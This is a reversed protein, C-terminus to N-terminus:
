LADKKPSIIELGKNFNSTSASLLLIIKVPNGSTKKDLKFIENNADKIREIGKKITWNTRKKDGAIYLLSFFIKIGMNKKIGIKNKKPSVKAYKKKIGKIHDKKIDKSFKKEEPKLKSSSDLYESYIFNVINKNNADPIDNSNGIRKIIKVFNPITSTLNRLFFLFYKKKPIKIKEANNVGGSIIECNPM